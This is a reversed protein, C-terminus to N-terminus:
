LATAPEPVATVESGEPAQAEQLERRALSKLIIVTAVLQYFLDFYARGLFAGSVLFSAFSLQLMRAYEALYNLTEHKRFRRVLRRCSWWCSAILTLFLLLGPFGHDALMQFYISHPGHTDDIGYQAYLPLTFTEFGGGFVPHDRALDSAFKWARLRSQASADTEPATRITEMRQMWAQPAYAVIALATVLLGVGALLKFRSKLAWLLLLAALGLMAGRSYTLVVAIMGM